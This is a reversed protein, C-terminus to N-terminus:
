ALHSSHLTPPLHAADGLQQIGLVLGGVLDGAALSAQMSAAALACTTDDLARRTHAGTVIELARFEPDCMVLVSDDPSGLAAHLREAYLRTEEESAGVYLSFTLGSLKEALQVARTLDALDGPSLGDAQLPDGARSAGVLQDGAPV